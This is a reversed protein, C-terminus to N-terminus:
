DEKILEDLLEDAAEQEADPKPQRPTEALFSGVRVRTGMGEKLVPVGRLTILGRADAIVEGSALVPPDGPGAVNPDVAQWKFTAGPAPLFTKLRRPTVNATARSGAKGPLYEAPSGSVLRVSFACGGRAQRFDDAPSEEDFDNAPSSWELASNRYGVPDKGPDDNCTASAFALLPEDLRVDFARNKAGSLRGREHGYRGWHAFYPIKAVELAACLRGLDATPALRDKTGLSMEILPPEFPLPKRAAREALALPSIAQYVAQTGFGAAILRSQRAGWVRRLAKEWYCGAPWSSPFMTAVVGAVREAGPAGSLVHNLAGSGGVSHGYLCIRAPDPSVPLNDPASATWEIIRGLKRSAYPEVPGASPDAPERAAPWADPGAQPISRAWGWWLCDQWDQASVYVLNGRVPTQPYRVGKARYGHLVVRVPLKVGAPLNRPAAVHFSWATGGWLRDAGSRNWERFDGYTLYYWGAPGTTSLQVAGPPAPAEGIPNVTANVGGAGTAAVPKGRVSALVCYHFRGEKAATWVFLGTGRPLPLGGRSRDVIAKRELGHGGIDGAKEHLLLASGAGLRGVLENEEPARGDFSRTSRYVRYEADPRGPIERWTVFTQGRQHFAALDSVGAPEAAVAAACSLAVACLILSVPRKM